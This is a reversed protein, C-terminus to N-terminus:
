SYQGWDRPIMWSTPWTIFDPSFTESLVEIREVQTELLCLSHPGSAGGYDWFHYRNLGDKARVSPGYDLPACTRVVSIQEKKSYFTLKLKNKSHIAKIFLDKM